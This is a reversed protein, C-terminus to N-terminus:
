VIINTTLSQQPDPNAHRLNRTTDCPTVLADCMYYNHTVLMLLPRTTAVANPLNFYVIIIFLLLLGYIPFILVGVCSSNAGKKVMRNYVDFPDGLGDVMKLISRKFIQLEHATIRALIADLVPVSACELIEYLLLSRGRESDM